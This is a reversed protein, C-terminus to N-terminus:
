VTGRCAVISHLFEDLDVTPKSVKELIISNETVIANYEDGSQLQSQIEPPLNLQREDTVSVIEGTDM